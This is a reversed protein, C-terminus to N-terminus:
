AHPSLKGVFDEEGDEAVGKYNMNDRGLINSPVM